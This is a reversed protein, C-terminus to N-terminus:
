TNKIRTLKILIKRWNEKVIEKNRLVEVVLDEVIWLLVILIKQEQFDKRISTGIL